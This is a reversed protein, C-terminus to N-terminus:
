AASPDHKKDSEEFRIEREVGGPFMAKIVLRGGMASVVSQLTSVLLDNRNEMKSISAQQIDLLEALKM